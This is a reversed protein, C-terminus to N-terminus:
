EAVQEAIETFDLLQPYKKGWICVWDLEYKRPKVWQNFSSYNWFHPCTVLGHKLPNYHRSELPKESMWKMGLQRSGFDASGFM